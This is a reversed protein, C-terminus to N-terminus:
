KVGAIERLPRRSQHMTYGTQVELEAYEALLEPNEKAANRIDNESGMICFMCSLRDNGLDYAYHPREGAEEIVQFVQNETLHHIPLWEWWERGAKSNRVSYNLPDRKARGHSEQARLGMCTVVADIGMKKTLRRVERTIPDRKLDSTCQRNKASPWCPSNPGPRVAYRHRVMEFFTKRSRAVIFPIGDRKAGNEAHELTGPWEVRGLAAHVIVLQDVPIIKRLMIRMAQSDKGGSDSLAFLAGYSILGKVTKPVHIEPKFPFEAQRPKM